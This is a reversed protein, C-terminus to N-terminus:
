VCKNIIKLMKRYQKIEQKTVMECYDIRSGECDLAHGHKSLLCALNIDSDNDLPLHENNIIMHEIECEILDDEWHGLEVNVLLRGFKGSGVCHIMCKFGFNNDIFEERDGVTELMNIIFAKAERGKERAIAKRLLCEDKELYTLEGRLGKYKLEACDVGLLRVKFREYHSQRFQLAVHYTDGDYIKVIYGKYLGQFSFFDPMLNADNKNSM